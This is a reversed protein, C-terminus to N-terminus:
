VRFLENIREIAFHHPIKEQELRISHVKLFDFVKHEAECLGPLVETSCVAGTDWYHKFLHLTEFDMLFSRSQPYYKRLQSLIQMGHEDIDGWYYIPINALWSIHKLNEIAFGGGWIAITQPMAPLTLFNMKNETIVIRTCGMPNTNFESLTVSVDSFKGGILLVDDLVRLRILPEAYKLQYRKEFSKEEINVAMGSLADFLSRLVGQQNEIFKTHVPIPLERVYYRGPEHANSFWACVNLLEPWHDHNGIVILPSKLLLDRLEPHAALILESDSVFREYEKKKGTFDLYDDLLEFSIADPLHQNGHLKTNVRKYQITYGFGKVDKSSAILPKLQKNMEAFDKSLTKNSRISKPFVPIGTIAARLV